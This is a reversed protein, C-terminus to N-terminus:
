KYRANIMEVVIERMSYGKQVCELKLKTHLEVPIRVLLAKEDKNEKKQKLKEASPIEVALDKVFGSMGGTKHKVAKDKLGM